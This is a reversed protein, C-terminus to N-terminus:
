YIFWDSRNRLSVEVSRAVSTVGEGAAPQFATPLLSGGVGDVIVSHDEISQETRLIEEKDLGFVSEKFRKAM